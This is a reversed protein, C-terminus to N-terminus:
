RAIETANSEVNYVDYWNIDIYVNIGRMEVLMALPMATITMVNTQGVDLVMVYGSLRVGGSLCGYMFYIGDVILRSLLDM